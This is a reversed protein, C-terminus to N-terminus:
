GGDISNSRDIVFRVTARRSGAHNRRREATCLPQAVIAGSTKLTVLLVEKADFCFSHM